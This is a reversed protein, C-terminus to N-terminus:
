KGLSKKLKKGVFPRLGYIPFKITIVFNVMSIQSENFDLLKSNSSNLTLHIPQIMYGDKKAKVYLLLSFNSICVKRQVVKFLGVM